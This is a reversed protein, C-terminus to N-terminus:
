NGLPTIERSGDPRPTPPPAPASEGLVQVRPPTPKPPPPPPPLAADPAPPPPPPAADPEVPTPEPTPTPDPRESPRPRPRRIPDLTANAEIPQGNAGVEVRVTAPAHGPKEIRFAYSGAIMETVWPTRGLEIDDLLVVADSPTSTITVRVQQAAAANPASDPAADPAARDAIPPAADIAATPPAVVPRAADLATAVSADALTTAVPVPDPQVGIIDRRGLQQWAFLLGLAVAIVVAGLILPANSGSDELPAEDDEPGEGVRKRDGPAPGLMLDDVRVRAVTAEDRVDILAEGRIAAVIGDLMDAASAFRRAPAKDLAQELIEPLAPPMEGIPRISYPSPPLHTLHGRVIESARDFPFPPRGSLLRYLLAGVSYLDSQPGARGSALLEPATYHLAEDPKDDGAVPGAFRMAVPRPRVLGFDVLKVTPPGPEGKPAHVLFINSPKLDLHLVGHEHAHALGALIQQVIPLADEVPMARDDSLEVSLPRGEVLEMVGCALGDETKNFDFLRVINPHDLEATQSSVDLFHDRGADDLPLLKVAVMRDADEQWAAWVTVGRAGLGLLERITYRGGLSQGTRDEILLTGDDPCRALAEDYQKRCLPCLDSVDVREGSLAPAPDAM